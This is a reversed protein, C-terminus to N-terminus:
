AKGCGPGTIRVLYLFGMKMELRFLVVTLTNWSAPINKLLANRLKPTFLTVKLDEQIGSSFYILLGFADTFNTPPLLFGSDRFRVSFQSYWLATKAGWGTILDLETESGVAEQIFPIHIISLFFFSLLRHSYWWSTSYIEERGEGLPFQFWKCM